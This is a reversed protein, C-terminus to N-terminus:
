ECVLYIKAAHFLIDYKWILYMKGGFISINKRIEGGFCINHNSM